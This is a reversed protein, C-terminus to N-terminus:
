EVSVTRFEPDSYFSTTIASIFRTARHFGTAWLGHLFNHHWLIEPRTQAAGHGKLDVTLKVAKVQTMAPVALLIRTRGM